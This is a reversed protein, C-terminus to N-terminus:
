GFPSSTCTSRLGLDQPVTMRKSSDFFPIYILLSIYELFIVNVYSRRLQLKPRTICTIEIPIEDLRFLGRLLLHTSDLLRPHSPPRSSSNTSSPFIASFTKLLKRLKAISVTVLLPRIFEGRITKRLSLDARSKDPDSAVVTGIPWRILGVVEPFM